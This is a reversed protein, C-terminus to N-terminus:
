NATKESIGLDIKKIDFASDIDAQMIEDLLSCVDNKFATQMSMLNSLLLPDVIQGECSDIVNKIQARSSQLVSFLQGCLTLQSENQKLMDKDLLLYFNDYVQAVKYRLAPPLAEYHKKFDVSDNIFVIDCHQRCDEVGLLYDVSVSFFQALACLMDYDPEKGETEYGSVTSRTKHIAKAVDAQTLQREKRLAILRQSFVKM